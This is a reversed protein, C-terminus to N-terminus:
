SYSNTILLLASCGLIVTAFWSGPWYNTQVCILVLPGFQKQNIMANIIVLVLKTHIPSHSDLKIGKSWLAQMAPSSDVSISSGSSSHLM